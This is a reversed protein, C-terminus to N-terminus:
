FEINVGLPGYIIKNAVFYCSSVVFFTNKWCTQLGQPQLNQQLVVIKYIWPKLGDSSPLNRLICM